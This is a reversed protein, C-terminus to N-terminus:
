EILVFPPEEQNFSQVLYMARYQDLMTLQHTNKYSYLEWIESCSKMFFSACHMANFIKKPLATTYYYLIKNDGQM